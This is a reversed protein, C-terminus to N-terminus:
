IVGMRGLERIVGDEWVSECIRDAIAKLPEEGNGMVVGCAAQEIMQYDNMSDGFAVTDEHPIHLFEATRHVATGKDAERSIIEGNVFGESVTDFLIIHFLDGFRQRLIEVKERGWLMFAVKPIPEEKPNWEQVNKVKGLKRFFDRWRILEPNDAPIEEGDTLVKAGRRSVYVQDYGELMYIADMEDLTDMIKQLLSTEVATRYVSKGRIRIDSGASAIIGELEMHKIEEPLECWARGTCVFVPHGNEKAKQLAEKVTERIGEGPILITGDIDLFILKKRM